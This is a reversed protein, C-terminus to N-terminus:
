QERGKLKLGSQTATRGGLPANLLQAIPAM